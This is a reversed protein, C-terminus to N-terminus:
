RHDERSARRRRRRIVIPLLGLAFLWLGTRAGDRRGPVHCGCGPDIKPVFGGDIGPADVSSGDVIVAADARGGDPLAGGDDGPGGDDRPGGDPVGGDGCGTPDFLCRDTDPDCSDTTCAITDDCEGDDHCCNAIAGNTCTGGAGSCSDLTCMDSDDCDGDTNCCSSIAANTCIGTGVACTDTTCANSDDCDAASSCCGSIATHGCIHTTTNCTDTTCDSGDDCDATVDCCGTLASHACTGGPGSCTDTTCADSDDCDGANNCCGSIATSSCGGPEGCADTTCANSDDCSLPGGAMCTGSGCREDGNCVMGDPCATGDAAYGNTPCTASSGTCNEAVDCVGTSARCTTSAPRFVDSPCSASSGTCSEAVDCGDAVAARCTTSALAFGDAPCAASTGSCTEAVDCIGAVGRCTTGMAAFGDGPCAPGTGPCNEAVDCDGSAARCAYSSPRFVDGPCAASSGTCSEAVDCGGSVAARCTFSAGRFGDVPCSPSSGPCTEQVDCVETASRCVFGSARYGDVPCAASSGTCNEAVDCGGSTAARCVATNPRFGNPPCAPSSGDCAEDLDCPGASVRCVNGAPLTDCFGDRTAGAARSCALCDTTVSGGCRSDCCVGDVCFGTACDSAGGCPGGVPMLDFVYAAGAGPFSEHHTRAGVLARMGSMGVADGFEDGSAGDSPVLIAEETWTSGARQFVYASEAYQTGVVASNGDLGVSAGFQDNNTGDSATLKQQQTWTSPSAFLFVYASGSATGRDDDLVSGFVGTTGQLAVSWGFFDSAASDAPRIEGTNSWTVGSRSYVYVAGANIVGGHDHLHAGVVAVNGSLAVANGFDDTGTDDPSTHRGQSTWVIGTRLFFEVADGTRSGVVATDAEVDVATGFYQSVAVSSTLRQQETWTTGSRVFVYAEGHSLAGGRPSGVIITDGSVAVSYGFNANAATGSGVLRGQLEWGAGTYFFVYAAGSDAGAADAKPAGVVVTDRDIDVADGFTDDPGGISPQFETQQSWGGADVFVYAGGSSTDYHDHSIAGAIATTGDIDVTVGFGDAQATDRGSMVGRETWTSGIRTFVYIRGPVSAETASVVLVDGKLETATGFYSNAISASGLLKAQQTWSAGSGVWVYASGANSASDDDSRSGAVITNGSLTVGWGYGDGAALDSPNLEIRPTWLGGSRTYVYAGGSDAMAAHDHRYAGIIATNADVDLSYGFGDSAAGDSAVLKAQQTWSAGAGTFVYAAGGGAKNSAGVLITGTTSSYSVATGFYDTNAGDSAAIKARQTWVGGGFTFVYAAGSNGVAGDGYQAGVVLTTGELDLAAGFMDSGLADSAFLKAQQTWLGGSRTFVFVAGANVARDDDLRSGVIATDGEIAVASGFAEAYTLDTAVLETEIWILPDIEVPYVADRDDVRIQLRGEALALRAPLEQGEADRAFLDTYRVREPREGAFVASREDMLMAELEGGLEMELVVPENASGGAPAAGLTFGQEIGAPGHVYWETLGSRAFTVRNGDAVPRAQAVPSLGDGRGLARLRLSALADDGLRTGVRVGDRDFRAHMDRSPHVASLAGGQAAVDYRPGPSAQVAQIWARRLDAPMASADSPEALAAQEVAEPGPGPEDPAVEESCGPAALLLGVWATVFLSCIHRGLSRM